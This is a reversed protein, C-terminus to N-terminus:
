PLQNKKFQKGQFCGKQKMLERVRNHPEWRNRSWEPALCEDTHTATAYLRELYISPALHEIFEIIREVYQELSLTPFTQKRWRRALETNDLIMLQHLKTGRVGLSNLILAANRPAHPSDTPSGFM